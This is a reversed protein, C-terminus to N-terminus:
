DDAQAHEREEHGDEVDQADDAHLAEVVAEAHGGGAGVAEVVFDAGEAVEDLGVEDHDLDHDLGAPGGDDVVVCVAVFAERLDGDEEDCDM